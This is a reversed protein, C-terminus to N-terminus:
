DMQEKALELDLREMADAPVCEIAEAYLREADKLRSRGFLMILGDAYETHAVASDPNLDLATRFHKEGADKKAGYTLGGVMGGVKDIIESHWTGMAIHADAHKPHRKLAEDLSTKVKGGLGQALAKGVSIGQSYRGLAYAHIYWANANDPEAKQLAVCREVIDQFLKLRTDADDELFNAYIM